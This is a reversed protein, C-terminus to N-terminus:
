YGGGWISMGGRNGPHLISWIDPHWHQKSPVLMMVGEDVSHHWTWDTPPKASISRPRQLMGKEGPILNDMMKALGADANMADLLQRNAEQFHKRAAVGPFMSSPLKAEFAM